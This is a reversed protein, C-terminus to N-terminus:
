YRKYSPRSQYDYSFSTSAFIRVDQLTGLKFICTQFTPLTVFFKGGLNLEELGSLCGIADPLQSLGCFSIDLKHLCSLRLLSSLLCSPLAKDASHYLSHFRFKTWELFSSATSESHSAYESKHLHRPNKFLNPCGSLNLYELSILCINNPIYVLNKCDKLNLFVLKRLVKISPDIQMLKVCGEFSLRELNLVGEFNPM